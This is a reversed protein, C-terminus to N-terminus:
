RSCDLAPPNKSSRTGSNLLKKESIGVCGECVNLHAAATARSVSRLCVRVPSPTQLPPRDSRGSKPVTTPPYFLLALIGRRRNKNARDVRGSQGRRRGRQHFLGSSRDRSGSVSGRTAGGNRFTSNRERLNLFSLLTGPWTDRSYLSVLKPGSARAIFAFAPFMVPLLRYLYKRRGM